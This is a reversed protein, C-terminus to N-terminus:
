WLELFSVLVAEIFVRLSPLSYQKAQSLANAELLARSYTLSLFYARNEPEDSTGRLMDFIICCVPDSHVIERGDPRRGSRILAPSTAYGVRRFKRKLTYTSASQFLSM